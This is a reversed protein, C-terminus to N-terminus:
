KFSDFVEHLFQNMQDIDKKEAILPPLFRLVNGGASLIVLGNKLAMSVVEGAAVSADLELGQMFGLGRRDIVFHYEKVFKDLTEELYSTMEKVHALIQRDDMIKISAIVGACVLPNGGYTSGHDGPVLSAKAVQNTTIFAGVPLGGGLAKATTLIDPKVQFQQWVYYSGSRGMGCQIEDFILLIDRQDCLKRVKQLFDMTALHIGGEGQVPELIIACTKENVLAEVSEYDNFDAFHVGGMLPLFPERYHTTGTVSLAGITRGHFSQNMAIVEFDAHGTKMYAYKKATKIAGEIAEAGSNTFFVKDLGSVRTLAFSADALTKHYYLNSTHILTKVQKCVAEDFEEDQYGFANVGIGSAFDLYKKHEEDFLYMGKGSVFSVPFRSYVQLLNDNIEEMTTESNNM